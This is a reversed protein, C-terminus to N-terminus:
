EDKQKRGEEKQALPRPGRFEGTQKAQYVLDNTADLCTLWGNGCAWTDICVWGDGILPEGSKQSTHGCVIRKGSKHPGEHGVLKYWRLWENSQDSLSRDHDLFAHVFVDNGTEYMDLGRRLFDLHEAPIDDLSTGYSAVTEQGGVHMWFLSNGHAIASLLMEEHNGILFILQCRSELDILMDIARATGSGRDVVDGLVVLTDDATPQLHEILTELAVDCGHIDGIALVRSPM